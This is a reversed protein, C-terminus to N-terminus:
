RLEYDKRIGRKKLWRSYAFRIKWYVIYPKRRIHIWIWNNIEDVKADWSCLTRIWNRNQLIEGPRGCEECIGQSKEEAEWVWDWVDEGTGETYYRLTGFKEKVQAISYDPYKSIIKNHLELIIDSWGAGVEFGIFYSGKEKDGFYPELYNRLQKKSMSTIRRRYRLKM